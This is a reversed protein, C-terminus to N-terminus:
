KRNEVQSQHTQVQFLLDKIMQELIEMTVINPWRNGELSIPAEWVVSQMHDLGHWKMSWRNASSLGVAYLVGSVLKMQSIPINLQENHGSVQATTLLSVQVPNDAKDFVMCVEAAFPERLAGEILPKQAPASLKVRLSSAHTGPVCTGEGKVVFESNEVGDPIPCLPYYTGEDTPNPQREFDIASGALLLLADVIAGADLRGGLSQEVCSALTNEASKVVDKSAMSDSEILQAISSEGTNRANIASRRDASQGVAPTVM